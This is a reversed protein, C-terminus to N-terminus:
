AAPLMVTFTSGVGARSVVGITGGQLEVLEKAIALGLGAGGGSRSSEGRYFREFIHPLVAPEIGPGNDAIHLAVRDGLAETRVEVSTDAATHRAANDVLILLVQKIADRDGLATGETSREYAMRLDPALCKVQRCVDEVLPQLPVPEAALKQGADMRALVLLQNVLRILRDVEETTDALIEAREGAPIAPQRHLLEINGRVTTLPTRLEHSADAVFRRQSDLLEELQRYTSELEALMQNFTLALQGVEDGPGDYTVRRSFDHESGIAHATRTIRHIPDLATGAFVWGLVFALLIAATSGAILSLRLSNLSQQTQGIPQAVQLIGAEGQQNSYRISYVMVPQEDVTASEFRDEGAQVAAFAAASLPLESGTLDLTKGEVQGTTTRIQTWRGPLTGSPLGADPAGGPPAPLPLSLRRVYGSAEHALNFRIADYSSQSQALYLSSGFAILTM